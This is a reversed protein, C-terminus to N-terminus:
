DIEYRLEMSTKTGLARRLIAVLQPDAGASELSTIADATINYSFEDLTEEVLNEALVDLQAETIQGVEADTDGDYLRIM